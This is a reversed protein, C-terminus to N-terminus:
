ACLSGDGKQSNNLLTNSGCISSSIIGGCRLWLSPDAEGCASGITCEEPSRCSVRVGTSPNRPDTRHFVAAGLGMYRCLYDAAAFTFVRSVCAPRWYGRGSAESGSSALLFGSTFNTLRLPILPQLWSQGNCTLSCTGDSPHFYSQQSCSTCQTQSSCQLCQGTCRRCEEPNSDKDRFYGVPCQAHQTCTNGIKFRGADQCDIGDAVCRTSNRLSGSTCSLCYEGTGESCSSCNKACSTCEQTESNGYMQRASCETHVVCTQRLEYLPLGSAIDFKHCSSCPGSSDCSCHARCQRCDGSSVGSSNPASFNDHCVVLSFLNSQHNLILSCDKSNHCDVAVHGATATPLDGKVASINKCFQKANTLSSVFYRWGPLKLVAVRGGAFESSLNLGLNQPHLFQLEASPVNTIRHSCKSDAQSLSLQIHAALLFFSFLWAPSFPSSIFCLSLSFCFCTLGM